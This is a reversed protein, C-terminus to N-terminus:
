VWTWNAIDPEDEMHEYSYRTADKTM